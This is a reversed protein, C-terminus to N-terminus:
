AMEGDEEDNYILPILAKDLAEQFEKDSLEEQKQRKENLAKSSGNHRYTKAM